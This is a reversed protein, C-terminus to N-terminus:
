PSPPSTPTSCSRGRPPSATATAGSRSGTHGQTFLDLATQTRALDGLAVARRADLSLDSGLTKQTAASHALARDLDLADALDLDAEVHLTGAYHM